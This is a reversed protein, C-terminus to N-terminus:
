AHNVQKAGIPRGRSTTVTSTSCPPNPASAAKGIARSINRSASRSPISLHSSQGKGNKHQQQRYTTEEILNPQRFRERRRAGHQRQYGPYQKKREQREDKSMATQADQQRLRPQVIRQRHGKQHRQHEKAATIPSSDVEGSANIRGFEDLEEKDKKDGSMQRLTRRLISADGQPRNGGLQRREPSQRQGYHYHAIKAKQCLQADGPRRNQEHRGHSPSEQNGEATANRCQRDKRMGKAM